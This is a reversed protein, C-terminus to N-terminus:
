APIANRSLHHTVLQRLKAGEFQRRVADIASIRAQPGRGRFGLWYPVYLIEDLPKVAISCRRLTWFAKGYLARRVKDQVIRSGLSKDLVPKLDNRTPVQVRQRELSKMEFHFLDMVGNVAELGVVSLQETGNNTIRVEFLEFPVYVQALTKLPGFIAYAIRGAIGGAFQRLADEQSVNVRVAAVDKM